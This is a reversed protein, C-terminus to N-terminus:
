DEAKNAKRVFDACREAIMVTPAQLHTAPITPFVSADAVRLNELGHVRLEDDLVGQEDEPAMRCTSSYHFTSRANQHIHRDIDEDSESDPVLIGEGLPYGMERMQRVIRLGLKVATRMIRLDDPDRMIAIDCAPRDRPDDSTLRISGKSKPRLIAIIMSFAGDQQLDYPEEVAIYGTPMIEIDPLNRPDYPDLDAPDKAVTRLDDDLLRSCAFITSQPNPSLFLGRGFVLYKLLEKVLVFPSKELKKLSDNLPARFILPVRPHDQQELTSCESHHFWMDFLASVLHSGVGPLDKVVEIGRERLHDAPGIGSFRFESNQFDPSLFDYRLLLLQPSGIAGSCLIVERRASVYYRRRSKDSELELWVGHVRSGRIDLSQVIATTCIKFRSSRKAAVDHPLFADFTSARHMNQDITMDVLCASVPPADPVNAEETYTIGLVNSADLCRHVFTICHSGTWNSYWQVLVCTKVSDFAMETLVQNQWPGSYTM